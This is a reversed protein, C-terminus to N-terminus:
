RKFCVAYQKLPDLENNLQSEAFLELPNFMDIIQDKTSYTLKQPAETNGLDTLVAYMNHAFNALEVDKKKRPDLDFDCVIVFDGVHDTIENIKQTKDDTNKTHHLCQSVIVLDYSSPTLADMRQTTIKADPYLQKIIKGSQENGNIDLITKPKFTHPLLIRLYTGLRDRYQVLPQKISALYNRLDNLLCKKQKAIFRNMVSTVGAPTLERAFVSYVNTSALQKADIPLDVSPVFDHASGVHAKKDAPGFTVDILFIPNSYLAKRKISNVFESSFKSERPRRNAGYM